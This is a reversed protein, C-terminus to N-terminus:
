PGDAFDADQIKEFELDAAPIVTKAEFNPQQGLIEIIQDVSIVAKKPRTILDGIKASDEKQIVERLAVVSANERATEDESDAILNLLWGLNRSEPRGSEDTLDATRM